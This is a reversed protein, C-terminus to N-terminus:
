EAFELGAYAMSCLGAQCLGAPLALGPKTTESIAHDKEREFWQFRGKFKIALSDATIRIM